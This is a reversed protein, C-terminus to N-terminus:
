EGDRKLRPYTGTFPKPNVSGGPAPYANSRNLPGVNTSVPYGRLTQESFLLSIRAWNGNADGQAAQSGFNTFFAAVDHGYPQLYALVPDLDSM